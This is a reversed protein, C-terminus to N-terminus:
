GVVIFAFIRGALMCASIAGSFLLVGGFIGTLLGGKDVIKLGVFVGFSAWLLLLINM